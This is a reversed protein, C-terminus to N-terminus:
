TEGRRNSRPYVRHRFNPAGAELEHLRARNRYALFREYVRYIRAFPRPAVRLAFILLRVRWNHFVQGASEAASLAQRYEGALLCKKCLELQLEAEARAHRALILDKQAKSVPLTSAMKEYVAVLSRKM